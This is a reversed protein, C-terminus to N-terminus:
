KFIKKGLVTVGLALWFYGLASESSVVWLGVTSENLDPKIDGYGLNTFIQISFNFAKEYKDIGLYICNWHWYMLSYIVIIFLGTTLTSSFSNWNKTFLANCFNITQAIIRRIINKERFPKEFLRITNQYWSIYNFVEKYQLDTDDNILRCSSFNSYKSNGKKLMLARILLEIYSIKSIIPANGFSNISIEIANINSGSWDSNSFSGFDNEFSLTTLHCNRFSCNSFNCNNFKIAQLISNDFNAYSFSANCIKANSIRINELSIGSLDNWNYYKGIHNVNAYFFENITKGDITLENFDIQTQEFLINGQKLSESIRKETEDIKRKIFTRVEGLVKKGTDTEWRIISDIMQALIQDYSNLKERLKRDNRYYIETISRENFGLKEFLKRIEDTKM